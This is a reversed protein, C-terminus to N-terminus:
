IKLEVGAELDDVISTIVKELANFVPPSTQWPSDMLYLKGNKKMEFRLPTKLNKNLNDLRNNLEKNYGEFEFQLIITNEPNNEDNRMELDCEICILQLNGKLGKEVNPEMDFNVESAVAGQTYPAQLMQVAPNNAASMLYNLKDGSLEPLQQTFLITLAERVRDSTTAEENTLAGIEPPREYPM